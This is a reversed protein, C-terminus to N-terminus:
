PQKSNVTARLPPPSYLECLAAALKELELKGFGFDLNIAVSSHHVRVIRVLQLGAALAGGLGAADGLDEHQAFPLPYIRAPVHVAPFLILALSPILM